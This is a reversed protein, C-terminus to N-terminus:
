EEESGDEGQYGFNFLVILLDQDDVRGSGDLDVVEYTVAGFNFLVQLLDEDDVIGNGTVDGNPLIPNIAVAGNVQVSSLRVGLWRMPYCEYDTINPVAANDTTARLKDHAPIVVIDYTGAQVPPTTLTRSTGTSRPMSFRAVRQKTGPRYFIVELTDVPPNHPDVWDSLTATGSLSGSSAQSDRLGFVAHYLWPSHYTKAGQVTNPDVNMAGNPDAEREPLCPNLIRTSPIALSNYRSNAWTGGTGTRQYAAYESLGGPAGYRWGMVRTAPGTVSPSDGYAILFYRGPNLTLRQGMSLHSLTLGVVNTANYTLLTTDNAQAQALTYDNEFLIQSLDPNGNGDAGIVKLYIREPPISFPPNDTVFFAVSITDFSLSAGASVVVPAATWLTANANTRGSTFSLYVSNLLPQNQGDRATDYWTAAPNGTFLTYPQAFGAGICAVCFAAAIINRM